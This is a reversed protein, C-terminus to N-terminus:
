RWRTVPVFRRVTIAIGDVIDSQTTGLANHTLGAYDLCWATFATWGFLHRQGTDRTQSLPGPEANM